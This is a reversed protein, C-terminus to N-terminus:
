DQQWALEWKKVALVPSTLQLTAALMPFCPIVELFSMAPVVLLVYNLKCNGILLLKQM